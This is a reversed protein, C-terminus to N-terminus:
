GNKAEPLATLIIDRLYASISLHRRAAEDRIRVADERPVNFCIQERDKLRYPM